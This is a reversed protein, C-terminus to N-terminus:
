DKGLAGRLREARERYVGGPMALLPDLLSPTDGVKVQALVGYWLAAESLDPSTTKVTTALPSLVDIAEKSQGSALLAVGQYLSVEALRRASLSDTAVPLMSKAEGLLDAAKQWDQVSYAALADALTKDMDGGRVSLTNPHPKFHEAFLRDRESPQPSLWRFLGLALLVAAAVSGIVLRWNTKRTHKGVSMQIPPLEAEWGKIKDMLETRSNSKVKAVLAKMERYLRGFEPEDALRSEVMLRDPEPLENDLYATILAIDKENEM